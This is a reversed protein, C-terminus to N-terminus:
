FEYCKANSRSFGSKRSKNRKIKFLPTVSLRVYIDSGRFDTKRFISVLDESGITLYAFRAAAGLRLKSYNYLTVPIYASIWKSQYRPVISLTNDRITSLNLLKLRQTWSASVFLNQDIAYDGSVNLAAPTGIIFGRHDFFPEFPSDIEIQDIFEDLSRVGVYDQPDVAFDTYNDPLAYNEVHHRYNILGVDLISVGLSLENIDFRIGLDFSIGGGHDQSNRLDFNDSYIGNRTYGLGGQLENNGVSLVGNRYDVNQDTDVRAFAGEYANLRKINIGIDFQEISKSLHLGIESWLMASIQTKRFDIVQSSFSENLEYIGFSESIGGTSANARFKTFIGIKTDFFFNSVIAPGAIEFHTSFSKDGGDLDFIISTSSPDESVTSRLSLLQLEDINRLDLLSTRRIFAYDTFLFAHVSAINAEWTFASTQSLAPNLYIRDVGAYNGLKFGLSEQSSLKIGFSIICFCILHFCLFIKLVPKIKFPKLRSRLTVNINTM